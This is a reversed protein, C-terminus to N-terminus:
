DLKGAGVYGGSEGEPDSTVWFAYLAGSSLHFRFRVPKGTPPPLKEQSEWHIRIRTKDEQVPICNAAAWQEMVEGQEDLCEVTLQGHSADANVWLTDGSFQLPRTTLEGPVTFAQMSAFGDRRLTALGTAGNAYMGNTKWDRAKRNPDGAFGSYYFWIEDEGVLCVGGVSQVYGREWSGEEPVAAIFPRRDPRHWHFGDRSFGVCLDVLKPLGQQECVENPPGKHIEFMGLMLSEYAVADLNYLQPPTLGSQDLNDAKVWALPEGERWAGGALFDDSEWYSRCRGHRCSSRLSFVWKKRFPDYFCTSRDGTPGTLVPESWHIGDPSTMLLAAPAYTAEPTAPTKDPERFFMKYRALEEGPTEDIWVTNSDPPYKSPLIQNTGPVVGWDPREWHIGDQSIALAMVNLWGAEYWMKFLGDRDDRWVGGGKPTACPNIKPNAEIATEPKFIPNAEHKRPQHFVRALSTKEILFDDVLLQRGLDIPIVAPPQRLYPVPMPERCNNDMTTPPWSNPLEIGNHLTTM